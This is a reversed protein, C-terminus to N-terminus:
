LHSAHKINQLLQGHDSPSQGEPAAEALPASGPLTGRKGNSRASKWLTADAAQASPMARRSTSSDVTSPHKPISNVVVMM